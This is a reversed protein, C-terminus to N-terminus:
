DTLVVNNKTDFLINSPKLDGHVINRQHAYSLAQGIKSLIALAEEPKSRYRGKYLRDQLSGGLLYEMVLYLQGREVGMDLIPLIHAHHLQKLANVTRLLQRREKQQHLQMDVIKIIVMRNQNITNGLIVLSKDAD